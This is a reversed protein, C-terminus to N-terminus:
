YQVIIGKICENWEINEFDLISSKCIGNSDWINLPIFLEFLKVSFFSLLLALDTVGYVEFIYASLPFFIPTNCCQSIYRRSAAPICIM